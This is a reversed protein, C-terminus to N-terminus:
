GWILSDSGAAVATTDAAPAGAVCAGGALLAAFAVASAVRRFRRRLRPRVSAASLVSAASPAPM